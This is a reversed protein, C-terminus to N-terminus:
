DNADDAAAEGKKKRVISDRVFQRGQESKVFKFCWNRLSMPKVGLSECLSVVDERRGVVLTKLEQWSVARKADALPCPEGFRMKNRQGTIVGIQKLGWWVDYVPDFGRANGKGDAEWLRMWYEQNPIGGLKNKITRGSIFRYRDVRDEGEYEVSPEEVVGREGVFGAPIARGMVRIRVDSNHSVIGNSIWSGETSFDVYFKPAISEGCGTVVDPIVQNLVSMQLYVTVLEEVYAFQTMVMDYVDSFGTRAYVEYLLDEFKTLRVEFTEDLNTCLHSLLISLDPATERLFKDWYSNVEKATLGNADVFVYSGKKICHMRTWCSNPVTVNNYDHDKEAEYNPMDTDHLSQKHEFEKKVPSAILLSHGASGVLSRGCETEIRLAGLAAYKGGDSKFVAKPEIFGYEAPCRIPWPRKPDHTNIYELVTMTTIQSERKVDVLTDPHVCYFKLANGCPEYNPDGHQQAPRERLQNVGFITMMKRRMAGRFRKIGDSFMRAQLAMAASPDDDDLQDPMMAPYSDVVTLLQMSTNDARVKFKNNTRFYETDYKGKLMAMNKKTNEFVYFAEGEATLIKDPLRRRMMSMYAFFDEGREPAYYRLYGDVIYKGTQPDQVGFIKEIDVELGFNRLMNCIYEEDSSGEYDFVAGLGDFRQKITAAVLTMTLTSKASQEPGAITYWGGPILGGDLYMDLSFLGTSLRQANRGFGVSLLRAKKEVENVSDLMIQRFSFSDGTVATPKKAM